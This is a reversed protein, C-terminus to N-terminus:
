NFSLNKTICAKVNDHLPLLARAPLAPAPELRAICRRRGDALRGPRASMRGGLAAREVIGHRDLERTAIPPGTRDDVQRATVVLTRCM